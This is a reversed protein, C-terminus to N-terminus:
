VCSSAPSSAPRPPGRFSACFRRLQQYGRRVRVDGFHHGMHDHRPRDLPISLRAGVKELIINSPVEFLVYGWFFIGAGFGYVEPSFGLDKTMTLAAFGINVRDIDAIFYLLMIFPVIPFAVPELDSLLLTKHRTSQTLLWVIEILVSAVTRARAPAAEPQM